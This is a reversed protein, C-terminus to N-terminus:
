LAVGLACQGCQARGAIDAIEPDVDATSVKFAPGEPVLYGIETLFTRYAALDSPAGNARHWADIREQLADRRALLARNKPALDHVIAAFAGWFAAEDIGTGPLAEDAGVAKVDSALVLGAADVGDTM